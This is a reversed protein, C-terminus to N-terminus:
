SSLPQQPASTEKFIHLIFIYLLMTVSHACPKTCVCLLMIHLKTKGQFIWTQKKKFLKNKIHINRQLKKRITRCTHKRFGFEHEQQLSCTSYLLSHTGHQISHSSSMAYREDQHKDVDHCCSTIEYEINSMSYSGSGKGSFLYTM